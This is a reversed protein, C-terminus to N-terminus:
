LLVDYYSNKIMCIHCAWLCLAAAKLPDPGLRVVPAKSLCLAVDTVINGQCCRIM